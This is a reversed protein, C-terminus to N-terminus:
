PVFFHGHATGPNLDSVMQTGAGTGDSEWLEIGHDPHLASFYVKGRHEQMMQIGASGVTNIDSVMSPASLGNTAWLERGYTDTYAGFFLLDSTATLEAPSSGDSGTRIDMVLTTGQATGDTMWLERGEAARDATFYLRAAFTTFSGPYSDTGSIDKLLTTGSATGDSAWLEVGAPGYDGAFCVTGGIAGIQIASDMARVLTVGASSGDTAYLGTGGTVSAGTFYLDGGMTTLATVNTFNWPHEDGAVQVIDSGSTYWLDNGSGNNAIFYLRGDFVMMDHPNSSNPGNVRTPVVSLAMGDPNINSVM